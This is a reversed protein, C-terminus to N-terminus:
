KKKSKVDEYAAMEERLAENAARIAKKAKAMSEFTYGAIRNTTPESFPKAAKCAVWEEVGEKRKPRKHITREGLAAGTEFEDGPYVWFIRVIGDYGEHAELVAGDDCRYRKSRRKRKVEQAVALCEECRLVWGEESDLLRKEEGNRERFIDCVPIQGLKKTRLFRCFKGPKSACTREGCEIEFTLRARM